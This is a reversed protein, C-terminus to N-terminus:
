ASSFITVFETYKTMQDHPNGVSHGGFSVKSGQSYQDPGLQEFSVIDNTLSEKFNVCYIFNKASFIHTAKATCFSSM